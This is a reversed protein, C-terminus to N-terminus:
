CLLFSWEVLAIYLNLVSEMLIGVCNRLSMSLAIRLTIHFILFGLITLVMKLLLLFELLTVM